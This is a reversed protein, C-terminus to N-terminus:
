KWGVASPVGSSFKEIAIGGGLTVPASWMPWASFPVIWSTSMRMLRIRPRLM